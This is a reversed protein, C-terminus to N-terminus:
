LIDRQTLSSDEDLPALVPILVGQVKLFPELAQFRPRRNKGLFPFSDGPLGGTRPRATAPTYLSTVRQCQKTRDADAGSLSSIFMLVFILGAPNSWHDM